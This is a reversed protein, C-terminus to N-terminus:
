SPETLSLRPSKNSCKPLVPSASSTATNQLHHGDDQGTPPSARSFLFSFYLFVSLAHSGSRSHSPRLIM